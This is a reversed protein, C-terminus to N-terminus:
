RRTWAHRSDPVGAVQPEALLDAVGTMQLVNRVGGQANRVSLGRRLAYALKYGRVLVTIGAADLFTVDGLDVCVHATGPARIARELVGALQRAVAADLEGTVTVTARGAVDVDLSADFSASDLM